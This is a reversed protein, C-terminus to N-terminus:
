HEGDDRSKMNNAQAEHRNHSAKQEQSKSWQADVGLEDCEAENLFGGSM